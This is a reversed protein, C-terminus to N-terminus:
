KRKLLAAFTRSNKSDALKERNKKMIEGMKKTRGRNFPRNPGRWAEMEGRETGRKEELPAPQRGEGVGSQVKMTEDRSATKRKKRRKEDAQLPHM